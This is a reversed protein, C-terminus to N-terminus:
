ERRIMCCFVLSCSFAVMCVWLISVLELHLQLLFFCPVQFCNGQVVNMSYHIHSISALSMFLGYNVHISYQRFWLNEIKKAPM